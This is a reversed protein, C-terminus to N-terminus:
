RQPRWYRPAAACARQWRLRARGRRHALRTDVRSPGPDGDAIETFLAHIQSETM